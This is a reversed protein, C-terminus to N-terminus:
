ERTVCSSKTNFSPIVPASDSVQRDNSKTMNFHVNLNETASLKLRICGGLVINFFVYQVRCQELALQSDGVCKVWVGPAPPTLPNHMITLPRYNHSTSSLRSRRTVASCSEFFTGWTMGLFCEHRTVILETADFLVIHCPPLRSLFIGFPARAGKARQTLM